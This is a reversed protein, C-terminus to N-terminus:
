SSLGIREALGEPKRGSGQFYVGQSCDPSIAALFYYHTNGNVARMDCAFCQWSGLGPYAGCSTQTWGSCTAPDLQQTQALFSRCFEERPTGKAILYYAGSNQWGGRGAEGECSAKVALHGNPCTDFTIRPRENLLWWWAVQSIVLLLGLLLAAFLLFKRVATIWSSASSV